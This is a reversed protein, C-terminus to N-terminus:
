KILVIKKITPAEENVIINIFYIGSSHNSATWSVNYNGEDLYDNLITDIKQGNINYIAINVKSDQILKIDMNFSPNFPNPYPSNIIYNNKQKSLNFIVPELADGLRIDPSFILEEKIDYYTSTPIHFAKFHINKLNNGYVMLTYVFENTYPFLKSEGIGICENDDYALLIYDQNNLLVLNNSNHLTATISGNFEFDHINLGFNNEISKNFNTSSRNLNTNNNNYIFDTSETLFLLYGNLPHMTELTGFWGFDSYYDAYESQSKIYTAYNHPINLLATEIGISSQPSYGIWNWGESLNFITTNIDIFTGRLALADSNLMNIKYMSLNNITELTGFWGFDSYYDSYESQSKIYTPADGISNFVSDISMYEFTQNFSIWNWGEYYHSLPVCHDLIAEYEIGISTTINSTEFCIKNGSTEFELIILSQEGPSLYINNSSATINNQNSQISFGSDIATGATINSINFDNIIPPLTDEQELNSLSINFDSVDFQCDMIIEISGSVISTENDLNVNIEGFDLIGVPCDPSCNEFNNLCNGDFYLQTCNFDAFTDIGDNCNGDELLAHDVCNQNCDLIENEECQNGTGGGDSPGIAGQDIWESILDIVSQDLPSAPSPPMQYGNPATGELKQILLSYSSYGPIIVQGSVGGNLLSEYSSLDLGSEHNSFHCYSTCNSNFITQIESTYDINTENNDDGDTGGDGGTGGTSGQGSCDLETCTYNNIDDCWYTAGSGNCVGCEDYTANGNCDGSCDENLCNGDCDYGNEAFLCSNNDTNAWQNYNCADSDMCGTFEGTPSINTGTLSFGLVTSSSASVTFGADAAAGGSVDLIELGTLDFQFGAISETNKIYVPFTGSEDPLNICESLSVILQTGSLDSFVENEICVESFSNNYSINTLTAGELDYFGFIVQGNNCSSNNGNCVGCQDLIANGGCDNNCDLINDDCDCSGAVIDSCGCEYIDGPGNCVGCEDLVNGSCDCAGEPIEDCLYVESIATFLSNFTGSGLSIDYTTVYEVQESAIWVKLVLDNGSIAGPLIPGGFQSLDVGQIGVVDLQSGNWIGTGVLIEGTNGDSDVLGNQDFLGVEDGSTLSTITTEFIFLSSEGTNSIEINFHQSYVFSFLSIYIYYKIM